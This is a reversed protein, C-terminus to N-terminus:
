TNLELIKFFSNKQQEKHKTKEKFFMQYFDHLVKFINHRCIDSDTFDLM